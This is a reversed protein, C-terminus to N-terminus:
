KIFILGIINLGIVNIYEYICNNIEKDLLTGSLVSRKRSSEDTFCECVHLDFLRLSLQINAIRLHFSRWTITLQEQVHLVTIYLYICRVLM